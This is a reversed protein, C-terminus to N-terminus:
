KINIGLGKKIEITKRRPMEYFIMSEQVQVNEVQATDQGRVVSPALLQVHNLQLGMIKTVIKNSIGDFIHKAKTALGGISVGWGSKVKEIIDPYSETNYIKAWFKIRRSLSDFATRIIEGVKNDNVNAHMNKCMIGTNPDAKTMTGVYIPIGEGQHAIYEMEEVTYLNGNRSIGESLLTGQIIAVGQSTEEVTVKAPSTYEFQFMFMGEDM